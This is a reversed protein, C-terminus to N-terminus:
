SARVKETKGSTRPIVKVAGPCPRVPRRPGHGRLPSRQAPGCVRGAIPSLPRWPVRVAARRSARWFNRENVLLVKALWAAYGRLNVIVRDGAQRERLDYSAYRFRHRMQAGDPTRLSKLRSLSAQRECSTEGSTAGIRRWSGRSRRRTSGTCTGSPGLTQQLADEAAQRYRERHDSTMSLEREAEDRRVSQDRVRHTSVWAVAPRINSATM